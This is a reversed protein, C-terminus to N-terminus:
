TNGEYIYITLGEVEDKTTYYKKCSVSYVNKDDSYAIGNLGDLVAKLINDADPKVQPLIEGRQAQERQAKNFSKPIEFAATVYISVPKTLMKGGAFRYAWGIKEEYAKTKNPEYFGVKDGRRYAKPRAKGQPKGAVTFVM